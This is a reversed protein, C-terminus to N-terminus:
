QLITQPTAPSESPMGDAQPVTDAQLRIHARGPDRYFRGGETYTSALADFAALM